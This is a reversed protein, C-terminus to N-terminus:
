IYVISKITIPRLSSPVTAREVAAAKYLSDLCQVHSSGIESRVTNERYIEFERLALLPRPLNKTKTLLRGIGSVIFFATAWHDFARPALRAWPITPEVSETKPYLGIFPVLELFLILPQAVHTKNIDVLLGVSNWGNRAFAAAPQLLRVHLLKIYQCNIIYIILM